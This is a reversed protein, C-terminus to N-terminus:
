SGAEADGDGLDYARRQVEVALVQEVRPHGQGLLLEAHEAGGHRVPPRRDLHSDTAVLTHPALQSLRFISAQLAVKWLTHHENSVM